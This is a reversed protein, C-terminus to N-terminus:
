RKLSFHGKYEKGNQRTVVFWYDSSPVDKGLYKGDWGISNTGLLKLLKGYRDFIKVTLNPENESFKIKWYDNYGDGNPTFFKPHMLLYIDDFITGCGNKDRVFVTYEGAELNNFVNSDQFDIGNLSYEYDGQSNNHLLVTITNNNETWDSSIIEQITAINSNVVTFNKTSTCIISGHNETVIVSYNGPQTITIIQTTEGTSWTYSDNNNGANLIIDKGECLPEIDNIPIVPKSVLQLTLTVIQFCTNPSAIRVYFTNTGLVLNYNAFNSIQQNSNIIAENYDSYYKFTNGTSSILNSNYSTLNKIVQNDNLDDCIVESYNTANLTNILNITVALRNVSECGNITQTAFYTANNILLTNNALPTTNTPSNYWIVNTGNTIIDAVTANATSCFSQNTNGTPAPTNQIQVLVPVRNSECGNITQSAYYTTGNVLLTNTNLQNLSIYSDYWKILSSNPVLNAVSANEDSCFVQTVDTSPISFACKGLKVIFGSNSSSYMLHTNVLDPNFDLQSNFTGGIYVNGFLDNSIRNTQNLINKFNNFNGFSDFIVLLGGPVNYSTMYNPFINFLNNNLYTIGSCSLIVSINNNNDKSLSSIYQSGNGYFVNQSIFEGSNNLKILAADVGFTSIYNININGYNVTSSDIFNTSFFINNSSDVKISKDETSIGGGISLALKKYWDENGNSDIKCIFDNYYSSNININNFTMNYLFVGKLIINNNNDCAISHPVISNGPINKNWILNGNSDTKQLFIYSLTSSQYKSGTSIINNNNDSTSEKFFISPYFNGFLYSGNSNLKLIFSGSNALPNNFINEIIPDPNLDIMSTASSYGTIILNNNNDCSISTGYNFATPNNIHKVWIFNKNSDTKLIFCNEETSSLIYDNSSGDFDMTGKFWGVSYINGDSDNTISNIRSSQNSTSIERINYAWEFDQGLGLQSIFLIIIVTIKKHMLHLLNKVFIIM